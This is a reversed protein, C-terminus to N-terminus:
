KRKILSTISRYKFQSEQYQNFKNHIEIFDINQQLYHNQDQTLYMSNFSEMLYYNNTQMRTRFHEQLHPYLTNENFINQEVYTRDLYLSHHIYILNLWSATIFWYFRANPITYTSTIHISDAEDIFLRRWRINDKNIKPFFSKIITNSILVVDAGFM